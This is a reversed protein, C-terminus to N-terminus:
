TEEGALRWHEAKFRGGSVQSILPLDNIVYFIRLPIHDESWIYQIGYYLLPM